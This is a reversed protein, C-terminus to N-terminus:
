KTVANLVIKGKYSCNTLFEQYWVPPPPGPFIESFTHYIKGFQGLMVGVGLDAGYKPNKWEFRECGDMNEEM